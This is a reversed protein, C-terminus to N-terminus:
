SAPRIAGRYRSRYYTSHAFDVKRVVDGSKPAHVMMGDELYLGVHTPDGTGGGFFVLDGQRLQSFPIRKGKTFQSGTYHPLSVGARSWAYLALGSCDFGGRTAGAKSGGGWVYPTGIQRVAVKAAIAGATLKRSRSSTIPGRKTAPRRSAHREGAPRSRQRGSPPRRRSESPRRDRAAPTLAAHGNRDSSGTGATLDRGPRGPLLRHPLGEEAVLVRVQRSAVESSSDPRSMAEDRAHAPRSAGGYLDYLPLAERLADRLAPSGHPTTAPQHVRQPTDRDGRTAGAASLLDRVPTAPIPLSWLRAGPSGYPDIQRHQPWAVSGSLAAGTVLVTTVLTTIM